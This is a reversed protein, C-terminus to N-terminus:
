GNSAGPMWMRSALHIETATAVSLRNGRVTEMWKTKKRRPEQALQSYNTHYRDEFYSITIKQFCRLQNIDLKMRLEFFDFRLIGLRSDSKGCM